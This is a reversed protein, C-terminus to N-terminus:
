NKIYDGYLGFTLVVESPAKKLEPIGHVYASFKGNPVRFRGRRSVSTKRTNGISDYITATENGVQYEIYEGSQLTDLFTISNNGMVVSPNILANPTLSVAEISKIRVGNCIGSTFVQISSIRTYNTPFRHTKYLQDEMGQFKLDPYEANDLDSLIVEKWGDFNTRIVYDAYGDLNGSSCLRICIADKSNVGNGKISVKLAYYGDINLLSPYEKKCQQSILDISEDLKILSISSKSNSSYLNEIRIFPSQQKFPNKGDLVSYSIDRIKSRCYKVERFVNKGRRNELRFEYRGAKLAAKVKDSFYNKIRLRNYQSYRELNRRLALLANVDRELLGNYVMTQDHAIAKVGLYDVDDFFMYKTSFGTPTTTSTPYFNYWGLTTLYHCNMLSENVAIHDDIFNKYGRCPTDWAGGRGRASWISPYLTACEVMPPEICYKLVENVFAAGYYWIYDDLGAYKLHVGLGDLADFYIGKFGGENYAAATRRAIEYFLESGPQPAIHSYYGGILRVKTGAKHSVAKTGCQGRQISVLGNVGVYYKLIEKDILLYPAHVVWFSQENKLTTKDGSISVDNDTASISKALIFNERFELQQQWKPNSLIENAGYSIYYSYTHLSSIIGADELPDVIQKKFGAANGFNPFSFQGQIFTKPGMGFDFQRIDWQSYFSIWEQLKSPDADKLMLCDRTNIESDLAFPGGVMSVPVNGKPISYYVEKLCKRLEKKNCVIVALKAGKLGTLFTCRGIVEKSEGSPYYFPDTQLSMAAGVAVTADEKSYDYLFKFDVFSLSEIGSLYDNIVEFSFYHNHAHVDLDVRLNGITLSLTNGRLTATHAEIIKGGTTKVYAIKNQAHTAIDVNSQLDVCAILEAKESIVLKAIDNCLVINGSEYRVEPPRSFLNIPLILLICGLLCFSRRCLLPESLKGTFFRLYYNIM